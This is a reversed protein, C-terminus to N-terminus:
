HNINNFVCMGTSLNYVTGFLIPPFTHTTIQSKLCVSSVSSTLLHNKLNVYVSSNKGGGEAKFYHM